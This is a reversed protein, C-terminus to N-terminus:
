YGGDGEGKIIEIGKPVMSKDIGINCLASEIGDENQDSVNIFLISGGKEIIKKYTSIEKEDFYDKDILNQLDEINNLVRENNCMLDYEIKVNLKKREKLPRYDALIFSASSSNTVFDNKIKM